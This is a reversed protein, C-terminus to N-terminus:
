PVCACVFWTGSGIVGDRVARCARVRDRAHTSADRRRAADTTIVTRVDSLTM